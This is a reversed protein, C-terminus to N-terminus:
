KAGMRRIEVQARLGHNEFSLGFDLSQVGQLPRPLPPGLRPQGPHGYVTSEMTQFEKNWVYKGGGPCALQTKWIQQHVAVPDREPDLRKWENLIPLNSWACAQMASQYEGGVFTRQLIEIVRRDVHLGMSTGLWSYPLASAAGSNESTPIGSKGGGSSNGKEKATAMRDLARKLLAENLTVILRKPTAAYNIELKRQVPAIGALSAAMKVYPQDHYKHTTWSVMGPATQEILNRLGTLFLALKLPDQVEATVAVPLRHLNAFLFEMSPDPEGLNHMGTKATAALENWFPDPDLYISISDGLWSFPSVQLPGQFFSGISKIPPANPNVAMAFHALTGEHPDGAAPKMQVGSVIEIYDRYDTGAILPMVTLDAALHNDQAAFRVAIPDFYYKWNSQYSNRWAQYGDREATSVKKFNLEAIPTLFELTGYTSSEVGNESVRLTGMDPVSYTSPIEQLKIAGAILEKLFETQFHTMVAAARTRRSSAIRWKPSCWRRIAQDPLILLGTEGSGIPYRNRFFKYEPLSALAASRGASADAIRELQVLSNTVVLAKGIEAVYSCVARNPTAVGTYKVGGITGEVTKCQANKQRAAAHQSSFHDRLVAPSPVEFLIALDTGTPLYPDSSTVAVSSVTANGVIRSLPDLTLCLQREYRERTRANEARAHTLRLVPTGLDDAEDMLRLLSELSPCFIAHQDAPIAVALPDTQPHIQKVLPVWDLPQITIGEISALDVTPEAQSNIRLLRDLQLNEAVARGGSFVAFTDEWGADATEAPLGSDVTAPTTQVSPVVSGPAAASPAGERSRNSPAAAGGIKGKASPNTAAAIESEAQRERVRFWAGGAIRRDALTRYYDRQAEFFTKRHAPDAASKSVVFRAKSMGKGSPGPFYLTGTVERRAPVRICLDGYATRTNPLLHLFIEGDGDLVAYPVAEQQDTLDAVVGLAGLRTRPVEKSTFQLQDFRVDFYADDARLVHAFCIVGFAAIWRGIKPLIDSHM